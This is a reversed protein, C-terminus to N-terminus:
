FTTTCDWHESKWLLDLFFRNAIDHDNIMQIIKGSFAPQKKTSEM